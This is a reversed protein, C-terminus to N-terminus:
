NDNNDEEPLPLPNLYGIGYHGPKLILIIKFKSNNEYKNVLISNDKQIFIM